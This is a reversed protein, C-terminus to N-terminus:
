VHALLGVTPSLRSRFREGPRVDDSAVREAHRSERDPSRLRGGGSPVPLARLHDTDRRRRPVPTWKRRPGALRGRTDDRSRTDRRSRRRGVRADRVAGSRAPLLLRALDRHRGAPRTGGWGCAHLQRAHACARHRRHVPAVHSGLHAPRSVGGSAHSQRAESRSGRVGSDGFWGHLRPRADCTSPTPASRRHRGLRPAYRRHGTAEIGRLSSELLECVARVVAGRSPM